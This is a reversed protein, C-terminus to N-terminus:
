YSRSITGLHWVNTVYNHQLSVWTQSINWLTELCLRRDGGLASIYGNGSTARVYSSNAYSRVDISGYWFYWIHHMICVHCISMVPLCMVGTIHDGTDARPKFGGTDGTGAGQEGHWPGTILAWYLNSPAGQLRWESGAGPPQPPKFPGGGGRGRGQDLNWGDNRRECNKARVKRPRPFFQLARLLNFLFSGINNM